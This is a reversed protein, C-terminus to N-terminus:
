GFDRAPSLGSRSTSEEIMRGKSEKSKAIASPLRMIPFGHDFGSAEQRPAERRALFFKKDCV